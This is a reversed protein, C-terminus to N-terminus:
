AHDVKQTACEALRDSLLGMLGQAPNGRGPCDDLGPNEALARYGMELHEADASGHLQFYRSDPFSRLGAAHFV